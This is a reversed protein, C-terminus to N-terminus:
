GIFTQYLFAIERCASMIHYQRSSILFVRVHWARFLHLSYVEHALRRLSKGESADLEVACCCSNISHPESSCKCTHYESQLASNKGKIVTIFGPAFLNVLLCMSVVISVFTSSFMLKTTKSLLLKDKKM